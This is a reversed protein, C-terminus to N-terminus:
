IGGDELYELSIEASVAGALWWELVSAGIRRWCRAAEPAFITFAVGVERAWRCLM